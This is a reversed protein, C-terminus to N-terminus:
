GTADLLATVYATRGRDDTLVDGPAADAGRGDRAPLAPRDPVTAIFSPIQGHEPALAYGRADTLVCAFDNAEDGNVRLFTGM